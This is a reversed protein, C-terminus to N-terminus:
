PALAYDVAGDFLKLGDDTLLNSQNSQRVFFFVRKAPAKANNGAMTAGKPYAYIAVHDAAAATAIKLAGGIPVGWAVGSGVSFVKVTGTLGASLIPDANDAITVQLQNNDFGHQAAMGGGGVMNLPQELNENMVVMPVDLAAANRISAMVTGAASSASLVIAGANLLDRDILENDARENMRFGRTRLHDVLDQDDVFNANMGNGTVYLLEVAPPTDPRPPRDARAPADPRPAPSPRGGDAGRAGFDRNRAADVRPPASGSSGAVGGTAVAGGAGGTGGLVPGGGSGAYPSGGSGGTVAGNDGIDVGPPPKVRAQDCTVLTLVALVPSWRPLKM